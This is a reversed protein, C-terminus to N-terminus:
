SLYAVNLFLELVTRGCVLDLIVYMQCGLLHELFTAVEFVILIRNSNSLRSDVPVYVQEWGRFQGTVFSDTYLFEHQGM